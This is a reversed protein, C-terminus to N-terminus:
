IKPQFRDYLLYYTASSLFVFAGLAIVFVPLLVKLPMLGHSYERVFFAVTLMFGGGYADSVSSQRNIGSVLRILAMVLSWGGLVSFFWIVPDLLANPIMTPGSVSWGEVWTIFESFIGPYLIFVSAITILIVGANVLGLPDGRKRSPRAAVEMRPTPPSVERAFFRTRRGVVRTGAVQDTYKQRPDALSFLGIFVDLLLLAWFVKSINRVLARSFSVPNGDLDTVELGVIQKGISAGYGGEALTFYFVQVVGISFPLGFAGRWTLWSGRFISGIILPIALVLGLVFVAISVIFSDILYAILRRAWSLQVTADGLLLDLGTGAKWDEDAGRRVQSGCSSCYIAKKPVEKGCKPCYPM